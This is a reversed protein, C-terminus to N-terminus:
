KELIYRTYLLDIRSKEKFFKYYNLDEDVSRQWTNSGIGEERHDRHARHHFVARVNNGLSFPADLCNPILNCLFTPLFYFFSGGGEGEERKEEKKGKGREGKGKEM